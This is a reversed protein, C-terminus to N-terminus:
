VVREGGHERGTPQFGCGLWFAEAGGEIPVYSLELADHGAARVADLLLAVAARGVGEGQVRADVMFRVLYPAPQEDLMLWLVGVVEGDREIARLWSGAGYHMAEAATQAAPAVMRDQGARLQLRCVATVNERTVPVLAVAM